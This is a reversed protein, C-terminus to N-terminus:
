KQPGSGSPRPETPLPGSGSPRPETPPPSPGLTLTEVSFRGYVEDGFRVEMTAPIIRGGAERYDSFYVECPDADDAPSMELALLRTDEPDFCFRCTVGGHIGVLVDALGEHGALPATGLYYVEGFGNLGATALRRWLYLAPLLGGSHPPALDAALDDGASWDMRGAPLEIRGGRDDLEIRFPKGEATGSLAWPGGLLEPSGLAVSWGQWLREQNRRNFFYNAYGRRAAYHKKVVEPAPPEKMRALMPMPRGDNPQRKEGGPKLPNKPDHFKEPAKEPEPGEPPKLERRGAVADWLENEHHVGALRVLTEYQKGGRRYAVPLRWGKPFIGVANVLANPSDIVRGAFRIIEDGYRLGRRYADSSESIEDIVVRGDADASTRLGLTAHDVIRGSALSGLFNKIQNISIAYGVGVSVRGRKEFSCRGNVGILRGSEDFLPGGSNGPNIAADTQLCDAYELLTGAPFQYRHTGSIIGYTVTPQLDTALMFPNGMAFVADGPRVADSDALTAAPFDDRGFLRILAVDGTPDIGVLVADYVRGDAMGCKMWHGCPQVVHFNTLALGDRSVVVGSGGGRGSSAFVAVVSQKARDITDARRSEAELVVPDITAGTPSRGASSQPTSSDNVAKVSGVRLPTSAGDAAKVWGVSVLMLLLFTLRVSM